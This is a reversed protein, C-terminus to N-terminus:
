IVVKKLKASLRLLIEYSITEFINALPRVDEFLTVESEQTNLSLSDMSVQGLVCFGKPTTYNIPLPLRLFGDAYGIDYTSSVHESKADYRGCYGVRQGESLVRTSMKEAILSLIPKFAPVEFSKPMDMYGYIAIGARVMFEESFDHQRFISASNCSHFVLDSMAYEKALAKAKTKMRKFNQRQWFSETSLVDASKYHTFMAKLCLGQKHIRLFAEELQEELVGQRHMGSDVKLEVVSGKAVKEIDELSNLAIHVHSELPEKPLESLILVYPFLKQILKAEQVDRVVAKQIGFEKAMQAIELLGHSYANDKIVIAVKEKTGVRQTLLELNHFFHQKNLEIRAM